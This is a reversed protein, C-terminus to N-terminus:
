PVATSMDEGLAMGAMGSGAEAKMFALMEPPVKLWFSLGTM